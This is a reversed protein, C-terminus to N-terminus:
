TLGVRVQYKEPSGDRASWWIKITYEGAGDCQPMGPLGDNPSADRCVHATANRLRTNLGAQWYNLGTTTFAQLGCNTGPECNGGALGTPDTYWGNALAHPNAQMQEALETALQMATNYATTERGMQMTSIQLTALGVLAISFILIAVLAELLTNGRQRSIYYSTGASIM